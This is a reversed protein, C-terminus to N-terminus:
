KIHIEAGIGEKYQFVMARDFTCNQSVCFAPFVGRGKYTKQRIIM